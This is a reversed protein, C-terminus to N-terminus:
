QNIQKINKRTVNIVNIHIKNSLYPFRRSCCSRPCRSMQRRKQGGAPARACIHIPHLCIHFHSRPVFTFLLGPLIGFAVFPTELRACVSSSSSTTPSGNHVIFIRNKIKKKIQPQDRSAFEITTAYQHNPYHIMSIIFSRIIHHLFSQIYSCSYQEPFLNEKYLLFYIATLFPFQPYLRSQWLIQVRFQLLYLGRCFTFLIYRLQFSYSQIINQRRGLIAWPRWM